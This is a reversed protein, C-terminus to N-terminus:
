RFAQEVVPILQKVREHIADGRSIINHKVNDGAGFLVLINRPFRQVDVGFLAMDNSIAEVQSLVANIQNLNLMRARVIVSKIRDSCRKIEGGQPSELKKDDILKKYTGWHELFFHLTQLLETKTEEFSLKKKLSQEQEGSEKAETESPDSELLEEKSASWSNLNYGKKECWKQIDPNPYTSDEVSVWMDPFKHILKWGYCTSANPLPYAQPIRKKFNIILRKHYHEAHYELNKDKELTGVPFFIYARVREIHKISYLRWFHIMLVVSVLTLIIPVVLNVQPPIEIQWVLSNPFWGFAQSLVVFLYISWLIGTVIEFVLALRELRSLPFGQKHKIWFRISAFFLIFAIGIITTLV